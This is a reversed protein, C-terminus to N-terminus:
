MPSLTPMFLRPTRRLDFPEAVQFNSRRRGSPADSLSAMLVVSRMAALRLARIGPVKRTARNTMPATQCEFHAGSEVSLHCNGTQAAREGDARTLNTSTLFGRKKDPFNENKGRTDGTYISPRSEPTFFDTLKFKFRWFPGSGIVLRLCFFLLCFVYM